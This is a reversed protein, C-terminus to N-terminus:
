VGQYDRAQKGEPTSLSVIGNQHIYQIRLIFSRIPTCLTKLLKTAISNYEATDLIDM